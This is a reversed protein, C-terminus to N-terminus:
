SKKWVLFVKRVNSTFYCQRIISGGNKTIMEKYEDLTAGLPDTSTSRLDHATHEIVCIGNETLTQGWTSLALDPDNSHDFANTYIIDFRNNWEPKAKHFDWNLLKMEPNSEIVLDTGIFDVGSAQEFWINEKGLKAGHCIGYKPVINLDQFYPSIFKNWLYEVEELQVWEYNIADKVTPHNYIGNTQAAVYENYNKYEYLKM